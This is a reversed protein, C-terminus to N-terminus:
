VTHEHYIVRVDIAQHPSQKAASIGLVVVCGERDEGIRRHPAAELRGPEPYSKGLGLPLVRRESPDRGVEPTPGPDRQDPSKSQLMGHNGHDCPSGREADTHRIVSFCATGSPRSLSTVERRSGGAAFTGNLRDISPQASLSSSLM